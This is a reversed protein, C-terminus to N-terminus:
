GDWLVDSTFIVTGDPLDTRSGHDTTISQEDHHLISIALMLKDRIIVVSQV